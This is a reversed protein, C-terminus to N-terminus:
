KRQKTVGLLRMGVRDNARAGDVTSPLESPVDSSWRHPGKASGSRGNRAARSFRAADGVGAGVPPRLGLPARVRPIVKALTIGNVQGPSGRKASRRERRSNMM